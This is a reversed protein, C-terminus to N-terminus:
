ACVPLPLLTWDGESGEVNHHFYGCETVHQDLVCRIPNQVNSVSVKKRWVQPLAHTLYVFICGIRVPFPDCLAGLFRGGGVM